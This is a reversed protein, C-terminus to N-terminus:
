VAEETYHAYLNLEPKEAQITSIDEIVEESSSDLCWGDFLFGEIYPPIIPILSSHPNIYYSCIMENEDQGYFNIQYVYSLENIKDIFGSPFVLQSSQESKERLAEAIANLDEKNVLYDNM